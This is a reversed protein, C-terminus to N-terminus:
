AAFKSRKAPARRSRSKRRSGLTVVHYWTYGKSRNRPDGHEGSACIRTNNAHSVENAAARRLMVASLRTSIVLAKKQQKDVRRRAQLSDRFTAQYRSAQTQKAFCFPQEPGFIYILEISGGERALVVLRSTGKSATAVTGRCHPQAVRSLRLAHLEKVHWRKRAANKELLGANM